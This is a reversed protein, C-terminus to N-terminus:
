GSFFAVSAGEPQDIHTPHSGIHTLTSRSTAMRSSPAVIRPLSPHVSIRICFIGAPSEFKKPEAKAATKKFWFSGEPARGPHDEPSGRPSEELPGAAGGGLLTDLNVMGHPIAQLLRGKRM